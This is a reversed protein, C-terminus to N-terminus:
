SNQFSLRMCLPGLDSSFPIELWIAHSPSFVEFEDGHVVVPLSLELTEKVQLSLKSKAAGAVINVMEAITDSVTEPDAEVGEGLLRRVMGQCTNHPMALAVTGRVVGSFGILAMVEDPHQEGGSVGLGTRAAKSQLMTSFLEFVAEVFPNVYQANM